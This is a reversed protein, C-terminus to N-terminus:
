LPETILAKVPTGFRLVFVTLPREGKGRLTAAVRDPDVAKDRTKVTVVGARLRALEQRVRAARWPMEALLRYGRLLPHAQTQEAGILGVGPWVTELNISEALTGLLGAREVAPDATYLLPRCGGSTQEVPEGQFSHTSGDAEVRTATAHGAAHRMLSGCWAVAQVLSSRGQTGESVYAMECPFPLDAADCGPALKIALAAAREHLRRLTNLDPSFHDLEHTRRNGPRRDPDIHLVADSPPPWDADICQHAVPRGTNHSAMFVHLPDADIGRANLGADTFGLLDGGIGCCLDHVAGCQPARALLESAKYRAVNLSSAQEMGVRTALMQEAREGFKRLGRTRAHVLELAAHVLPADWRKRLRMVDSPSRADCDQAARLLDDHQGAAIAQWTQLEITATTM